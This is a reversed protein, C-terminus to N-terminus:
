QPVSCHCTRLWLLQAELLTHGWGLLPVSDLRALGTSPVGAVSGLRRQLVARPSLPVPGRLAPAAGSPGPAATQVLSERLREAWSPRCCTGSLLGLLAGCLVRAPRQRATGARREASGAPFLSNWGGRLSGLRARQRSCADQGLGASGRFGGPRDLQAGPGLGWFWPAGAVSAASDPFEFAMTRSQALNFIDARGGRIANRSFRTLYVLSGAPVPSLPPIILM